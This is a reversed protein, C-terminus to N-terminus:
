RLCKGAAQDDSACKLLLEEAGSVPNRIYQAVMAQQQAASMPMRSPVEAIDSWFAVVCPQAPVCAAAAATKLLEPNSAYAPEVVVLQRQGLSGVHKWSSQAPAASVSATIVLLAMFTVVSIRKNQM